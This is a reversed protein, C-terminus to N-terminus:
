MVMKSYEKRWTMDEYSFFLIEGQRLSTAKNKHPRKPLISIHRYASSRNTKSNQIPETHITWICNDLPRHFVALTKRCFFYATNKKLYLCFLLLRYVIKRPFQVRRFIICINGPIIPRKSLWSDYSSCLDGLLNPSLFSLDCLFSLFFFFSCNLKFFLQHARVRPKAPLQTAEGRGAGVNRLNVAEFSM